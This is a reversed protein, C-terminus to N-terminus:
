LRKLYKRLGKRKNVKKKQNGQLKFIPLNLKEWFDRLTDKNRKM